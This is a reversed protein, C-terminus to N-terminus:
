QSRAMFKSPDLFDATYPKGGAFTKGVENLVILSNRLAIGVDRDAIIAAAEYDAKHRLQRLADLNNGALSNRRKLADVVAKHGQSGTTAAGTFDRACILAAYYARGIITRKITERHPETQTNYLWSALVYFEAFDFVPSGTNVSRSSSM